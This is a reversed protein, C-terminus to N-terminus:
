AAREYENTLGGLISRRTIREHNLNPVPHDAQPPRLQHGRHPRRGNYQRIYQALVTRLHRESFILMRDTLETRATLVFREAFCNARPCGPPIKVVRIGADALVTDFSATFQGARDRILFRFEAARDGLDMLLNRAQQTTWPGDPNTTTGLIHVSRNHVELAFLVYIRKLTVACDVHFFDVALMASAQTRLFQRWTTDTSRRPAPPIQRRRLIRRITSAGVRHGLKLLEGQIRQYGWTENETAMREILASLAANIPPRGSRHPYTWKKAVLRRHWRMVTGPTILRHGRLPAPLLRILASFVARDAWDLRPKPTTRRLVAVEHRLVLLEADKAASSRGLLVLWGVLRIFILYLMRLSM